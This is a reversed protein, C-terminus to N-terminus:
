HEVLILLKLSSVLSAYNVKVEDIDEIAYFKLIARKKVIWKEFGINPSCSHNYFRTFNGYRKPDITHVADQEKTSLQFAYDKLVANKNLAQAQKRPLAEGVVQGLFQRDELKRRSFLGVGKLISIFQLQMLETWDFNGQSERNGCNSVKCSEDCEMRKRRNICQEDECNSPCKKHIGKPGDVNLNQNLGPLFLAEDYIMTDTHTFFAGKHDLYRSVLWNNIASSFNKAHKLKDKWSIKKKKWLEESGFAYVFYKDRLEIKLKQSEDPNLSVWSATLQLVQYINERVFTDVYDIAIIM